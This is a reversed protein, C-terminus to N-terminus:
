IIFIVLWLFMKSNLFKNIRIFVGLCGMGGDELCSLGIILFVIGLRLIFRYEEM